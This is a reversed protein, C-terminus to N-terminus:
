IEESPRTNKSIRKIDKNKLLNLPKTAHTNVYSLITYKLSEPDNLQIILELLHQLDREEDHILCLCGSIVLKRRSVPVKCVYKILWLVVYLSMLFNM